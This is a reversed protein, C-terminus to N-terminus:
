DKYDNAIINYKFESMDDVEVIIVTIILYGLPFKVMQGIYLGFNFFHCVSYPCTINPKNNAEWVSFVGIM